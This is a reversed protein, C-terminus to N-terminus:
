KRESVSSFIFVLEFFSNYYHVFIDTQIVPPPVAPFPRTVISNTAEFGIGVITGGGGVRVM